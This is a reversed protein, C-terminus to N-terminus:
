LKFLSIIEEKSMSSINGENGEVFQDALKKKMDQLKQIKEEISDKMIMKFVHVNRNQGIRYARDIAQNEASVNWWPDLIIVASAATLNLGTNGAKLSILMVDAKEDQFDHVYERRHEKSVSGTFKFYSIGRQILEEELLDLASTFSSFLLVKQGNEKLTEILSLTAKMKESPHGINSYLMRPEICLQRLRMLLALIAIDDVQDMKLVEQLKENASALNAYYLDNEEESFAITRTSEIKEPLEKLVENKNRRLIFPSVLRRLQGVKEEDEDKVIDREYHKSFYNYNFLYGPMLFDFMSWLEALSNEIPTGTLVLRHDAVLSKVANANKTHANKIAQGEDLIVYNFGISEYKEYDRRMYDYSTVYLENELHEIIASRNSENGVICTVKLTDSFKHVEEEWNYVLSAPCVVLSPKDSQMSDLLAIVQLTKGLGMDDALIGNFGYERLTSLWQYGEKQYDRLVGKYAEPIEYSKRKGDFQNLLKTFSAERNVQVYKTDEENLSFMRAQNVNVIGDDIDRADIHYKELFDNVEDLEYSDLYILEGSKLRYFKKKRQYQELVKGIEKRPINSSSFDLELLDHNPRIGISLSYHTKRGMKRLADSVYVEAYEKLAEVGKELFQYTKENNLDFYAVQNEIKQAYSIIYTEVFDQKFSKVMKDDFGLVRHNNEDFYFVRFIVNGEDDIDGYIKTVEYTKFWPEVETDLDFYNSINSFVFKYFYSYDKERVVFQHMSFSNIFELVKGDKDLPIRDIRVDHDQYITYLHCKGKVYPLDGLSYIYYGDEKELLLPIREEYEQLILGDTRINSYTDFFDDLLEQKVVFSKGVKTNAYYGSGESNEKDNLMKVQRIFALQQLGEDDLYKEDHVFTLNKGYSYSEHNVFYNVFNDISKVVYKKDTGIKYSVELQDSENLRVVPELSYTDSQINTKMLSFYEQKQKDLYASTENAISEYSARRVLKQKQKLASVVQEKVNNVEYFPYSNVSEYRYLLAKAHVCPVDDSCKGCSCKFRVPKNEEIDFSVEVQHGMLFMKGYAKHEDIKVESFVKNKVFSSLLSGDLSSIYSNM